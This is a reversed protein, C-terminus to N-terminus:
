DTYDNYYPKFENYEHQLDRILTLQSITPNMGFIMQYTQYAGFSCIVSLCIVSLIIGPVTSYSQKGKYTLTVNVGFMDIKSFLDFLISSLPREQDHKKM